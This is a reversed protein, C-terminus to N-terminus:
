SFSNRTVPKHELYNIMNCMVGYCTSEHLEHHTFRKAEDSTALQLAFQNIAIKTYESENTDLYELVAAHKGGFESEATTKYLDSWSYITSQMPDYEPTKALSGTILDTWTWARDAEPIRKWLKNAGATFPFEGRDNRYFIPRCLRGGDNYIMIARSAIDFAVSTSAPLLGQRRCERMYATAQIPNDTSGAWFGNVMIKVMAGLQIPTLESIPTMQIEEPHDRLWQILPERSHSRTVYTMISLYKHIGINGGDPTDIADIIGWHSGHLVRPGVLKISPDLPLNTKRLHSIYGLFSLRNLDQVVGVRRTKPTAGWSGKFAKQIGTNVQNAGYDTFVEDQTMEILVSMDAYTAKNFEYKSEFGRRINSTYILLHERFLDRLLVGVPEIRKYKFNDRDTSEKAGTAVAMMENVIYGLYMAKDRFNVEGVHPLFLDALAYLVRNVTQGKVLVSMYNLADAQSFVSGADHISPLFWDLVEADVTDPDQLLCTAIISKDSVIGLARFLIFLPVPKRVNPVNVVINQNTYTSDPNVLHVSLTRVPKAVNESVSRIKATVAYQDNEGTNKQIALMNNGFIEQCVVTKEKGSIIFYGGIDNKCEGLSFRAQKDLGHLTCSSSQVMIPLNCIFKRISPLKFTQVTTNRDRLSLTKQINSIMENTPKAMSDGPIKYGNEDVFVPTVGTPEPQVDVIQEIHVDVDCYIPMSYTMNRLRAENPFMFHVNDPDYIVPKGFFVRTGDAGGFYLKASAGFNNTTANYELDVKVPNTERFLQSIGSATFDNYSDVHHRVLSQPNDEFHADIISWVAEDFEDSM